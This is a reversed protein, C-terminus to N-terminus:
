FTNSIYLTKLWSFSTPKMSVVVKFQFKDKVHPINYGSKAADNSPKVDKIGTLAPKNKPM